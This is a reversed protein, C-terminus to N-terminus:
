FWSKASLVFASPHSTDCVAREPVGTANRYLRSPKGVLKVFPRPWSMDKCYSENCRTTFRKPALKAASENAYSTIPSLCTAVLATDVSEINLLGDPQVSEITVCM